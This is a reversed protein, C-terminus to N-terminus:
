GHVRGGFETGKREKGTGMGGDLWHIGLGPRLINNYFSVCQAGGANTGKGALSSGLFHPVYIFACHDRWVGKLERGIGKAVALRSSEL